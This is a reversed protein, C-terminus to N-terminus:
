GKIIKLADKSIQLGRTNKGSMFPPKSYIDVEIYVQTYYFIQAVGFAKYAALLFVVALAAFFVIAVFALATTQLDSSEASNDDIYNKLKGNLKRLDELDKFNYDKIEINQDRIAKDYFSLGDEYVKFNKNQALKLLESSYELQNYVTYPDNSEIATEINVFVNPDIVLIEALLDEQVSIVEREMKVLSDKSINHETEALYFVNQKLIEVEEKMSKLTPMKDVLDGQQFFIARFFDEGNYNSSRSNLSRTLDVINIDDTDRYCSTLTTFTIVILLFNAILKSKQKIKKM